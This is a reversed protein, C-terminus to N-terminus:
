VQERYPDLKKESTASIPASPLNIRASPTQTMQSLKDSGISPSQNIGFAEATTIKAPTTVATQNIKLGIPPRMETNAPKSIIEMNPILGIKPIQSQPINQEPSTPMKTIIVKKEPLASPTSPKPTTQPVETAKKEAVLVAEAALSPKGGGTSPKSIFGKETVRKLLYEHPNDTEVERTPTYHIKVEPPRPNEIESLIADRSMNFDAEPNPLPNKKDEYALNNISPATVTNNPLSIPQTTKEILSQKAPMFVATDLRSILKDRASKDSILLYKELSNPFDSSKQLGLFVYGIEQALLGAKDIMLGEEKAISFIKENIEESMIMDRLEQPISSFAKNIQEKNFRTDM